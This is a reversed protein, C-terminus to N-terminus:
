RGFRERRYRATADITVAVLLVAGTIVFRASSAFALLDMGNTIAGIVLAGLLASWTTGRGGFLSTGGIVAAAIADLLIDGGGSSQNVAFLRSAALIGGAAALGSALAFVATRIRDVPIGARRAAEAGGGVAYIWRGFRTRRTVRDLAVVLVLFGAVGAPIGAIRPDGRPNRNVSMLWVAGIIAASIFADRVARATASRAPLGAAARRRRGWEGGVWLVAVALAAAVWGLWVPLRANALGVIFPDSLNITGTSGLIWLLAGQWGLYGALTVVFSPVRLKTVWAGQALGIGLGLALGSAVALPGPVGHKVSLVAMAAACFGSVAGVSLDIEGLLLVLVVGVAITGVGAIQVLLNTLNLPTLFYPNALRFVAAILLLGLVVPLAGLEGQRFRVGLAGLAGPRPRSAGGRAPGSASRADM